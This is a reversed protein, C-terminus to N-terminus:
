QVWRSLTRSTGTGHSRVEAQEDADAGHGLYLRQVEDTASLEAASGQLSVKGVDLVFASDAVSLAMRANQEVLLVSTGQRNIEKIVQGIQGVIIPALGLSPEDLLLLEPSGMLARGIALMQQEGGSLLVARQKRRDALVPFLEFVRRQARDKAARDRSSIGGARLNEEVNLRGFIRRGEPVQMLGLRVCAAPDLGRLSTGKFEISGGDVRGRHGKLVNSVARLLTSKGAGNSGLVAVVSKEPVSLSVGRLAQVAGGYSVRLDKVELMTHTSEGGPVQM